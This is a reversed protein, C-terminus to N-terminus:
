AMIRSTKKQNENNIVPSPGRTILVKKCTAANTSFNKVTSTSKTKVVEFNELAILLLSVFHM